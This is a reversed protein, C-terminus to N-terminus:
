KSLYKSQHYNDHGDQNGNDFIVLRNFVFWYVFLGLLIFLLNEIFIDSLLETSDHRLYFLSQVVVQMIFMRSLDNIMVLTNDDIDLEIRYFAENM